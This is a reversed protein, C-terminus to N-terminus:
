DNKAVKGNEEEPLKKELRRVRELLQPLHNIVAKIRKQKYHSRAPFGSVFEGASIDKTVGSKAAVIANDGINVHDTVGSQGALVVGNGITSSGSIGVLGVIATNKGITVNHAIHVLNDIKSGSGIRTAGMTARDITVNAGIEVDDGIVVRGVQPIKYYAGDEKKVFGFGDSGIVAGSHIIVREGIKINNLITVGPHLFSEKGIVVKDGLYVGASLFVEDGLEVEDGIVAYPGVTVSKGVRVNKNLLATPHIGSVKRLPPYFISLIKALALRPNKVRIIPKSFEKVESPVIVASAKSKVAERLFKNSAALAIEGKKAEEVKAVGEIKLSGNGVLEGEVLKALEQLSKKM